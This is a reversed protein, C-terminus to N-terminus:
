SAMDDADSVGRNGAPGSPGVLGVMSGVRRARASGDPSDGDGASPSLTVSSPAAPGRVPYWTGPAIASVGVDAAPEQNM